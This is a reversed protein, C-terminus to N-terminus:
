LTFVAVGDGDGGAEELLEAAAERVPAVATRNACSAFWSAHRVGAAALGDCLEEWNAVSAQFRDGLMKVTRTTSTVACPPLGLFTFLRSMSADTDARLEEYTLSWEDVTGIIRFCVRLEDSTVALGLTAMTGVQTFARSCTIAQM